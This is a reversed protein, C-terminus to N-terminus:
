SCTHLLMAGLVALAVRQTLGRNERPALKEILKEAVPAEQQSRPCVEPTSLRSVAAQGALAFLLAAFGGAFGRRWSRSELTHDM